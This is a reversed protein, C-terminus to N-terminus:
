GSPAPLLPKVVGIRSTPPTSVISLRGSALDDRLLPRLSETSVVGEVLSTAVFAEESGAQHRPAELAVTSAIAIVVAVSAVSAVTRLQVHRRPRTVVVPRIPELPAGRMLNTFWETGLAFDRCEACRRLHVDVFRQELEHLPYDLGTSVLGRTRECSIPSVAEM